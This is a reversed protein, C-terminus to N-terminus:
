SRRAALQLALERQLRARTYPFHSLRDVATRLHTIAEDDLAFQRKLIRYTLRGQQQLRVRVQDLVEFIEMAEGQPVPNYLLPLAISLRQGPSTM